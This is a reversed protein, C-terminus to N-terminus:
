RDNGWHAKVEQHDDRTVENDWPNQVPEPLAHPSQM